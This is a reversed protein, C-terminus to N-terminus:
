ISIWGLGFDFVLKTLVYWFALAAWVLTAVVFFPLALNTFDSLKDYLAYSWERLRMKWIPPM